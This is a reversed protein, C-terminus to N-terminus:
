LRFYASSSQAQYAMMGHGLSLPCNDNRTFLSFNPTSLFAKHSEMIAASVIAYVENLTTVYRAMEIVM